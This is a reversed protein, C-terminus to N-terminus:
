SSTYLAKLTSLPPSWVRGREDPMDVLTHPRLLARLLARFGGGKMLCTVVLVFASVLGELSVV